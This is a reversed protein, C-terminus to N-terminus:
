SSLTRARSNWAHTVSRGSGTTGDGFDWSYTTAQAANATLTVTAGTTADCFQLVCRAGDSLFSSDLPPASVTVAKTVSNPSAGSTNSITLKAAYTGVAAFTHSVTQGSGSNGDGFDWTYQDPQRDFRRRRLQCGPRRDAERRSASPRPSCV